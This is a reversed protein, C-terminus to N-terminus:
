FLCAATPQRNSETQQMNQFLNYYKIDKEINFLEYTNLKLVLLARIKIDLTKHPLGLLTVIIPQGSIQLCILVNSLNVM